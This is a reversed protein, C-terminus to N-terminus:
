FVIQWYGVDIWGGFKFGVQELHAVKRFGCAEHLAVSAANPLAIGGLATHVPLARLRELLARYLHTGVGRGTESEEVYVTSEVSQRYATRERWKGAYAYGLAGGEREAVLWPLTRSVASVRAAMEQVGVEAEEFTIITKRIYPNYIRCIAEADAPTADRIRM